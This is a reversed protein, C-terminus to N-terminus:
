RVQDDVAANDSKLPSRVLVRSVLPVAVVGESDADRLRACGIHIFSMGRNVLLSIMGM